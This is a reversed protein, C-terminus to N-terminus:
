LIVVVSLLSFFCFLVVITLNLRVILAFLVGTLIGASLFRTVIVVSVFIVAAVRYFYYDHDTVTLFGRAVVVVVVVVVVPAAIVALM